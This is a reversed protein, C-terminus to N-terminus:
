LAGVTAEVRPSTGHAYIGGDDSMLENVIEGGTVMMGGDRLETSTPTAQVRGDADAGVLGVAMMVATAMVGQGFDTAAVKAAAEAAGKSPADQPTSSFAAACSRTGSVNSSEAAEQRREPKPEKAGGGAIKLAEEAKESWGHLGKEVRQFASGIGEGFGLWLESVARVM